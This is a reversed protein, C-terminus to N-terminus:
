IMGADLLRTALASTKSRSCNGRQPANAASGEERGSLASPAWEAPKVLLLFIEMPREQFPGPGVDLPDSVSTHMHAIGALLPADVVESGSRVKAGLSKNMLLPRECVQDEGVINCPPLLLLLLLLPLLPIVAPVTGRKSHECVSYVTPPLMPACGLALATSSSSISRNNGRGVITTKYLVHM